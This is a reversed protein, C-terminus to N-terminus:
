SAQTGATETASTADNTEGLQAELRQIEATVTDLTLVEHKQPADLGMLKARRDMIAIVRDVAFLAGKDASMAKDMAVNLVLDLREMELRRFEDVAEAPIAALARQVRAHATQKSCGMHDAIRQYTYGLSRLKLADTDIHAQEETRIFGSPSTQTM